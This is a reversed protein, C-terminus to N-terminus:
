YFMFMLEYYKDYIKKNFCVFYVKELQEPSYVKLMDRVARCAIACAKEYPYGYVGTSIAPFAINKCNNKIALEISNKYCSYLLEEENNNGGHWIPGVTHIIYKCPLNYSNTLKAEGTKCGHLTRCEELLKPGAARHIAGDVGGGGLLYNNAANVIVDVDLTTIDENIIEIRESLNEKRFDIKNILEYIQDKGRLLEFWRKPINEFGYLVGAIGGTVAATTDTDNGFAIAKKISEEYSSSEIIAKFSSKLCDIVYGTGSEEVVDQPLIDNILAYLYEKKDKYIEQLKNVSIKYAEEFNNGKLIYRIILSYLACCIQNNIHGHTILSQNQADIVLDEDSGEHLLPIGLVRMLSGNGQGNKITFGSEYPSVGSNYKMLAQMTQGGVDFVNNDVALYGWSWWDLLKDALNKMNLEKCELFSEVVCLFQAGDDSYTGCPIDEYTKKFGKPPIMDIKDMLPINEPPNFEYSVGTADGILLGWLGGLVKEKSYYLRYM